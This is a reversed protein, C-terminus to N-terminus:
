SPLDSNESCCLCIPARNSVVATLSSRPIGDGVHREIAAMGLTEIEGRKHADLRHGYTLELLREHGSITLVVSPRLKHM